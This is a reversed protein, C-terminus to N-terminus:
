CWRQIRNLKLCCPWKRPRVRLKPVRVRLINWLRGVALERGLVCVVERAQMSTIKVCLWPTDIHNSFCTHESPRPGEWECLGRHNRTGSCRLAQSPRRHMKDRVNRHPRDIRNSLNVESIICHTLTAMIVLPRCSGRGKSIWKFRKASNRYSLHCLKPPVMLMISFPTSTSDSLMAM